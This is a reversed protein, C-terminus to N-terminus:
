ESYEKYLIRNGCLLFHFDLPVSPQIAALNYHTLLWRSASQVLKETAVRSEGPSHRVKTINVRSNTFFFKPSWYSSKLSYHKSSKHHHKNNLQNTKRFQLTKMSGTKVVSYCWCTDPSSLPFIIPSFHSIFASPTFIFSCGWLRKILSSEQFACDSQIM